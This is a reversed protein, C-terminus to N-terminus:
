FIRIEHLLEAMCFQNYLHYAFAQKSLIIQIILRYHLCGDHFLYRIDNDFFYMLFFCSCVVFRHWVNIRNM